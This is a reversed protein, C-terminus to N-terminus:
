VNHVPCFRETHDRNAARRGDEVAGLNDARMTPPVIRKTEKKKKIM